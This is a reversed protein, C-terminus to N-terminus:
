SDFEGDDRGSDVGRSYPAVWGEESKPFLSHDEKKIGLKFEHECDLCKIFYFDFGKVNKHDPTINKSKCNGCAHPLGAFFGLQKFLEKVDDSQVQLDTTGMKFNAKIM